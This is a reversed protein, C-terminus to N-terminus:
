RSRRFLYLTPLLLLTSPEPVQGESIPALTIDSFSLGQPAFPKVYSLINDSDRHFFVPDYQMHQELFAGQMYWDDISGETHTLLLTNSDNYFIGDGNLILSGAGTRADVYNVQINLGAHATTTILALALSAIIKNM